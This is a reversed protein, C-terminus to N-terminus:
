AAADLAALVDDGVARSGGYLFGNTVANKVSGLYNTLPAPLNGCPPVLLMPGGLSGVHAGGSLADPFAVGSAFGLTAPGNFFAQAVMVSTAYRDAGVIPTASPDATAAPGGVATTKSGPHANLYAATDASQSPGNTLLVAGGAKAAAAGAGLADPFAFGTAELITPPNGLVGAIATATAFRTGGSIRQPIYGMTELTTEIASSLAATGGLLYVTSGKPAVRSIETSVTSSLGGPTTLLLPGHKSVALPTGALADPYNADSALVVAKASGAQPFAASSVAVSTADRDAGALRTVIGSPPQAASGAQCPPLFTALNGTHAADHHFMPWSISGLRAPSGVRYHEVVGTGDPQTGAVTIGVQGGGDDTVLPTNQFGTQGIDIGAIQAASRGDYIFVGAGTPVLLDQAGDGNLDATAITGIIVGGDSNRGAWNPLPNGSGDLVWILGGNTNNPSGFTGEVIAAHGTGGVDALAPGALTDGGLDKRWRLHGGFDLSFISTSDNAGGNNQWFNGTGFNISPGTGDLDGIAPSSRVQEDVNFEWILKGDGTLARMMGGKFDIPGGPTSDGGIVIDRVGPSRITALAPSSFVTDDTYFPWGNNMVGSVANYSPSQLGLAGINADPFGDGNTDGIAFSSHFAQNPCNPDSGINHWRVAGSPEFAYTGGGSCAGSVSKAAEGSGVFIRSQGDGVVDAAAPSSNIPNTTQAPWGPEDTGSAADLAYVKGDLAGVVYASSALTAPVPSSERFTVGPFTRRWVQHLSVAAPAAGVPPAAPLAAVLGTSVVTAAM